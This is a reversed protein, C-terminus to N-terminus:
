GNVSMRYAAQTELIFAATPLQIMYYRLILQTTTPFLVQTHFVVAHFTYLM